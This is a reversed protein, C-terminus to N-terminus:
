IVNEHVLMIIEKLYLFMEKSDKYLYVSIIQVITILMSM